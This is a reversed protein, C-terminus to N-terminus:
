ATKGFCHKLDNALADGFAVLIRRNARLIGGFRPAGSDRSRVPTPVVVCRMGSRLAFLALETGVSRGSDFRGHRRYLEIRYGKLGCLIDPVGFRLKTFWGFLRETIRAYEGRNGIVIDATGSLLPAAVKSLLDAAFQNDADFTIVIEAGLRDAEAFGAELAREYGGNRPQVVTHAGAKDALSGTGDSSGDDVVLATGFASVTKVVHGITEAENLAPIVIVIRPGDEPM